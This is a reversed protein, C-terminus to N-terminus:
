KALEKTQLFLNPNYEPIEPEGPYGLQNSVIQTNGRYLQGSWHTHGHLWLAPQYTDILDSCDAQYYATLPGVPYRKDTLEFLPPFHTVVVTRGPVCAKLTSELWFLSDLYRQRADTPTFPRWGTSESEEVLGILSFDNILREAEEMAQEQGESGLLDFGTWLSCGLFTVGKIIVTENELFHIREHSAFTERFRELEFNIVSRYFEHNGAVWVIHSEPLQDAMRQVADIAGLGVGIDGALVLVDCHSPLPPIWTPTESHFEFHLDSALAIKM